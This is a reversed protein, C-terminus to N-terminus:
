LLSILYWCRDRTQAAAESLEAVPRFTGGEWELGAASIAAEKRNIWAIEDSRLAARKDEPLVQMLYSYIDNLLNDWKQYRDSADVRMSYTSGDGTFPINDIAQYRSIFQGRASLVSEIAVIERQAGDLYDLAYQQQGANLAGWNADCFWQFEDRAEYYMRRNFYNIGKEMGSDFQWTPMAFASISGMLVIASMGVIIRNIFTRM